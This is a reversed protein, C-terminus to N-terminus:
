QASRLKRWRDYQEIKTPNPDEEDLLWFRFWDLNREASEKQLRPLQINHGTKPYVIFEAPMGARRAAKPSGMMGVALSKAGAEFLVAADLGEFHLDPSLAIYRGPNDYLSAGYQVDHVERNLFGATLSYNVIKNQTGEAFSGARFMNNRAMILPALWAGHSHGSIGMRAPDAVGTQILHEIGSVIDDVPEGDLNTPNAFNDGFTFTGRYNPFFVAIGNLPFADFPYPWYPFYDAFKESMAFAPGGHVFTLLPWPEGDLSRGVPELLWGQVTVGDKGKWSVERAQPLQKDRNLRNLRKVGHEKRWIHIEPPRTLSENVFAAVKYDGDFRVFSVSGKVNKLMGARKIGSPTIQYLSQRAQVTMNLYAASENVPLFASGVDGAYVDIEQWYQGEETLQEDAALDFLTWETKSLWRDRETTRRVFFRHENPVWEGGFFYQATETESPTRARFLTLFTKTMVDFIGLDTYKYFLAENPMNDAVYTLALKSADSSWYISKIQGPAEVRFDKAGKRRLWLTHSPRITTDIWEPNVFNYVATNEPDIVVGEEGNFLREYLGSRHYNPSIQSPKFSVDTQTIWALAEGNSAFRFQIVSNSGHTVQRIRHDKTNLLYLQSVGGEAMLFALEHTEPAWAFNRAKQIEAILIPESGAATASIYVSRVPKNEELSLSEIAYVVMEGDSSLELETIRKIKFYDNITFPQKAAGCSSFGGFSLTAVIAIALSIRLFSRINVFTM